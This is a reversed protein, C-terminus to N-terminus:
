DHLDKQVLSCSRAGSRVKPVAASTSPYISSGVPFARPWPLDKRSSRSIPFAVRDDHRPVPRVLWVILRPYRLTEAVGSPRCELQRDLTLTFSRCHESCSSCPSYELRPPEARAGPDRRKRRRAKWADTQPWLRLYEWNRRGSRGNMEWDLCADAEM